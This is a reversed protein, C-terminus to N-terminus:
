KTHSLCTNTSVDMGHCMCVMACIHQNLPCGQSAAETWAGENPTLLSFGPQCAQVALVKQVGIWRVLGEMGIKVQEGAGGGVGM